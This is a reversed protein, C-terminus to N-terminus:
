FFQGAVPRNQGPWLHGTKFHGDPSLEEKLFTEFFVFVFLSKM